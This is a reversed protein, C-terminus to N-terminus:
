SRGDEHRVLQRAGLALEGGLVEHQFERGVEASFTKGRMSLDLM